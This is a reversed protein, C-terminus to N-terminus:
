KAGSKRATKSVRSTTEKLAVKRGKGLSVSGRKPGLHKNVATRRRATCASM